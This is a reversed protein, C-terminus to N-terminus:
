TPSYHSFLVVNILVHPIVLSCVSLKTSHDCVHRKRPLPLLLLLLWPSKTTGGASPFLYEEEKSHKQRRHKKNQM